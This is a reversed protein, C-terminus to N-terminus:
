AGYYSGLENKKKKQTGFTNASATDWTNQAQDQLGNSRNYADIALKNQQKMQDMMQYTGYLSGLSAIGKSANAFNDSGLFNGVSKFYDGLEM